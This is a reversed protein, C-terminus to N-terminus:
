LSGLPDIQAELFKMVLRLSRRTDRRHKWVKERTLASASREVKPKTTGTCTISGMVYKSGRSRADNARCKLEEVQQKSFRVRGSKTVKHPVLTGADLAREITRRSVKIETRLMEITFLGRIVKEKGRLKM